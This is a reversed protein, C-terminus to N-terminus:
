QASVDAALRLGRREHKFNAPYSLSDSAPCWTPYLNCSGGRMAHRGDPLIDACWEWVNGNMGRLGWPNAPCAEIPILERTHIYYAREGDGQESTTGSRCAYEWETQTPLRYTRGDRLSLRRLFEQCDEWSVWEVPLDDGQLWSPDEDMLSRWLAQSVECKGLLFPKEVVLSRQTDDQAIVCSGAPVVVLDIGDGTHLTPLPAPTTVESAALFGAVILMLLHPPIAMIAWVPAPRLSSLQEQPRPRRSLPM